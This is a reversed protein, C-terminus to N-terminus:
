AGAAVIHIHGGYYTTVWHPRPPVDYKKICDKTFANFNFPKPEFMTNNGPAIPMVMESCTQWGWGIDSESEYTLPIVFCSINRGVTLAYVGAFIKSLTDNGFADGDVGSCIRDVLYDPPSNYQAVNTLINELYDKLETSNKLPNCTVFRKSLISLGNPQSAVKDIEAWSKLITQYCTESADRFSKTVISHYGDEPTIDDFYLLPASSALAGLAIHPYKLRFWSALMGGYSGGAVIVPSM